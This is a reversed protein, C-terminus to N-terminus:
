SIEIVTTSVHAFDENVNHLSNRKSSHRYSVYDYM